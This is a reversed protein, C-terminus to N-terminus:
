QWSSPGRAMRLGSCGGVPKCKEVSAKRLPPSVLLRKQCAVNGERMGVCHAHGPFSLESCLVSPCGGMGEGGSAPGPCLSATGVHGQGDRCEGYTVSPNDRNKCVIHVSKLLGIEGQVYRVGFKM